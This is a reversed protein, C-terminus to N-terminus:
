SRPHKKDYIARLYSTEVHTYIQVTTLNEHGLLLQLSRLDVGGKLLHTALSHRLQHPYISRDIGSKKCLEKLMSWVAQRTIAKLKGAYFIPFLYDTPRKGNQTFVPHTSQLYEKMLQLIEHPVPVMRAKGGKGQVDIFATDFHLQSIKVGILESIRMGTGYLLYIILKNRVGIPSADQETAMLLQRVEQESLYDPLKKELKPFTLDSAINNMHHHEHLYSFLIKLASIKRTISRASLCIEEKLHKIYAKMHAASVDELVISQDALYGTFQEVDRRYANFTNAACLKETLLYAHFKSIIHAVNM